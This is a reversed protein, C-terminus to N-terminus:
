RKAGDKKVERNKMRKMAGRKMVGRSSRRPSLRPFFAPPRVASLRAPPRCLFLRAPPALSPREATCDHAAPATM